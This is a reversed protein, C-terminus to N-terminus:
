EQAEETQEAPAEEVVEETAEAGAKRVKIAMPGKEGQSKEFEVKDGEAPSYGETLENKHFFLDKEEGIDIFGFNKDEIWKKVTGQM